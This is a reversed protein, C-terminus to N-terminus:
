ALLRSLVSVRSVQNAARVEWVKLIEQHLASGTTRTIDPVNGRDDPQEDYSIPTTPPRYPM